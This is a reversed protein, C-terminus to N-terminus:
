NQIQSIKILKGNLLSRYLNDYQTIMKSLTFNGEIFERANTGLKRRLKSNSKLIMIKESLDLPNRLHYIIGNFNNKVIERNSLIDSAIVPKACSMAELISLSLGERLSTNVLLDIDKYFDDINFKWGLFEVNFLKFKEKFRLAFQFQAGNGIIIFRLNEKKLLKASKLLDIINKEKSLRGIFGITFKSNQKQYILNKIRIGNKIVNIKQEPIKFYYILEKKVSDSVAIIQNFRRDFFNNWARSFFGIKNLDVGIGHKTLILKANTRFNSLFLVVTRASHFHIIDPNIERLYKRFKYIFLPDKQFIVKHSIDFEKLKDLLRGNNLCLIDIEYNRRLENSLELLIRECGALYTNNTIM